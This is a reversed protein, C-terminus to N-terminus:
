SSVVIKWGLSSTLYSPYQNEGLKAVVAWKVLLSAKTYPAKVSILLSDGSSAPSLM